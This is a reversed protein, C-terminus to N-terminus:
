KAPVTKKSDRSRTTQDLNLSENTNGFELSKQANWEGPHIQPQAYVVQEHPLIKIKQLVRLQNGQM